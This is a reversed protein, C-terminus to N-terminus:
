LAPFSGKLLPKVGRPSRVLPAARHSWSLESTQAREGPNPQSGGLLPPLCRLSEHDRGAM